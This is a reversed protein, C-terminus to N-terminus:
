SCPQEQDSTRLAALDAPTDIDDPRGTDDCPVETVAASSRLFGRAGTDGVAAATAAAWVGRDLLVPNRHEGGYTAVAATAGDRWAAVLRNVCASGVLPQDALAVVAAGCRGELAALGARLSSGMGTSWRENVVVEAGTLDAEGSVRQAQAGLVVVVPACGGARLLRVGREVFREGDVVALAKPGGLRRGEGAALLVGGVM